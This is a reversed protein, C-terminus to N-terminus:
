DKSIRGFEDKHAAMFADIARNVLKYISVGTSEHLEQIADFQAKSIRVNGGLLSNQPKKEQAM